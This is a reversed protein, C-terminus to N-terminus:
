TYFNGRGCKHKNGIKIPLFTYKMSGSITYIFGHKPRGIKFSHKFGEPRTVELIDINEARFDPEKLFYEKRM